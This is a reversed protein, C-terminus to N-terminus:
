IVTPLTLSIGPEEDAVPSPVFLDRSRCALRHITSTSGDSVQRLLREIVKLLVMGSRM